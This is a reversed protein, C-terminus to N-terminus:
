YGMIKLALYPALIFVFTLLKYSALFRFYILTLEPEAVGFWQSHLATIPKKLVTLLLTAFVLFGLNLLSAWGLLETIFSATM